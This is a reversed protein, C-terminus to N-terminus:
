VKASNVAPSVSVAGALIFVTGLYLNWTLKEHLIIAGLIMAFIPILLTSFSAFTAGVQQIAKYYFLFGLVTGIVALGSAGMIATLSPFPLTFPRDIILSLPLLVITALILQATLTVLPPAKPLHARAYVTGTGYSLTALVILLAGISNGLRQTFIIPLYIITLGLLGSAIGLIKNKTLTDQSGFFHSLIATFILTLGNLIGGLSSSIYLEGYNILCFPIANLTLGIILFQKWYRKWSLINHNQLRCIVALLAAAIGVRLVVLTLPPIEFVTIKIFLFSPGWCLGCLFLLPLTKTKPLTM